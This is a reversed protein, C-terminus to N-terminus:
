IQYQKLVQVLRAGNIMKTNFQPIEVVQNMSELMINYALPGIVCRGIFPSYSQLHVAMYPRMRRMDNLQRELWQNMKPTLEGGSKPQHTSVYLQLRSGHKILPLIFRDSVVKELNTAKLPTVVGFLLGQSKLLDFTEFIQHYLGPNVQEKMENAEGELVIMPLVNGLNVLRQCRETNMSTGNTFVIFEVDSYKEYLKLLGDNLVPDGGSLIILHIGIEKAEFVLRDIESLPMSFSHDHPYYCDKCNLQCDMGIDLMLAYPIQVQYKQSAQERKNIGEWAEKVVINQLFHNLVNKHTNYVMNKIYRKISPHSDYYSKIEKVTQQIQPDTIFNQSMEYLKDVGNEPDEKLVEVINAVIFNTPLLNMNNLFNLM